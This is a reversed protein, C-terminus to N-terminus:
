SEKPYYRVQDSGDVTLLWTNKLTTDYQRLIKEVWARDKGAVKLNNAMLCGDSIITIPVYQKKVKVGAEAATAPREKPYPFVSLNGDTELIAYQVTKLDLIGGQRLQGTLEDLTVKAKKMNKQLMKGNEILIMPKSCLIKRLWVSRLSAVSILAEIGLVTAMPIIGMWLPMDTNEIPIAALDAILLTAVFESPELQGLQRKGMLRVELFLLSYLIITHYFSTLM